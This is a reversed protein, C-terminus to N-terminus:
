GVQATHIKYSYLKSKKNVYQRIINIYFFFIMFEWFMPQYILILFEM